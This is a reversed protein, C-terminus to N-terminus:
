FYQLQFHKLCMKLDICVCLSITFNEFYVQELSTKPFSCLCLSCGRLLKHTNVYTSQTSGLM